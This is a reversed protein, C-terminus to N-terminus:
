ESSHVQTGAGLSQLTTFDRANRPIQNQRAHGAGAATNTAAAPIASLGKGSLHM